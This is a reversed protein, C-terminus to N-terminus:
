QNLKFSLGFFILYDSFGGSLLTYTNTYKSAIKDPVTQRTAQKLMVPVYASLSIKNLNYIIGPEISLNYGARRNGNSGGVLDHVPIGELRGGISVSMKDKTYNIGARATYQDPVSNVCRGSKIDVNSPARGLLPSVGNQERPNILYFLNGYLSMAKNIIYYTNLETTIGTGGDGLQISPNVPALVLSDEKRYFYDQYRYDGTPFKIGLGFQM